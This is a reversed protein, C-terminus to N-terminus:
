ATIFKLKDKVGRLFNEVKMEKKGELHIIKPLILGNGTQILLRNKFKKTDGSPVQLNDENFTAEIFRIRRKKNNIKVISWATPRPYYARIERDIEEAKDTWDIRATEKSIDNQFCYSAKNSDQERPIIEKNIWRRLVNITEKVGTNMLKNM